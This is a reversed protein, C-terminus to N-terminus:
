SQKQSLLELEEAQEEEDQEEEDEEERNLRRSWSQRQSLLELEECEELEDRGDEEKELQLEERCFDLEILQM